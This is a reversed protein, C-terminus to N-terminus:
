FIISIGNYIGNKYTNLHTFNDFRGTIKFVNQYNKQLDIYYYANMICDENYTRYPVNLDKKCKYKKM